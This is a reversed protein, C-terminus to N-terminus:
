KILSHGWLSQKPRKCTEETKQGATSTFAKTLINELDIAM